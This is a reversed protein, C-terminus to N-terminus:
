PQVVTVASLTDTLWGSIVAAIAMNNREVMMMHGNGRIGVDPLRIFTSPVGAQELYRVTCHDYPAHYSAEATLILIPIGKLKPLQHAPTQQLWCRGLDPGLPKEDRVIQLESPASVAPSYTLPVSTLGWTRSMTASDRYWEPAGVNKINFFPPGNPEIAILAKILDPRGDAVVWGVTASASHVLLIAPGIEELLDIIADRNLEQILEFDSIVPLQSAYLQDFVPDGPQGNGPWQTHLHAQPYLNYREPTIFRTQLTEVDFPNRAPGYMDANFAAKGMGAPDVVYVQYGQRLFFQAWGERGDPTGSFNTGSQGAGPVMVIPWDATQVIPSQYEAYLQGSMVQRDNIIAYEGGVFRYGQRAVPLPYGNLQAAPETNPRVSVLITLVFLLAIWRKTM